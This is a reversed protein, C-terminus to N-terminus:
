KSFIFFILIACHQWPASLCTEAAGPAAIGSLEPRASRIASRVCALDTRTLGGAGPSTYVNTYLRRQITMSAPSLAPYPVLSLVAPVQVNRWASLGPIQYSTWTHGMRQAYSPRYEFARLAVPLPYRSAWLRRYAAGVSVAPCAQAWSRGGLSRM